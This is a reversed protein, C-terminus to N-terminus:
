RSAADLANLVNIRGKGFYADTGPQGLDDATSTILNMVSSAATTGWQSYLYAALGSVHPASLSTGAELIYHARDQCVTFAPDVSHSSCPGYIWRSPDPPGDGGPAAVDVANQGYNSYSAFADAPGTASVCLQPGAECPLEIFDADRQLDTGENGAASVVVVGRSKARTLARNMASLLYSAGPANRPLYAGLSMNIIQAGVSTAYYIGQIVTGISGTGTADLVKVAILDVDPAVGAIGVNNSTVIGGVLTGHMNDDAWDPPGSISSVLGISRATDILGRQDVHDPDLGSDIIAVRITKGAPGAAWAEPAHIQSLNWQAPLLAAAFPSRRVTVGLPEVGINIQLKAAEREPLWSAIFDRVAVGNGAIATADSDSLGRTLAVGIESMENVVTGGHGAVRTGFDAPVGQPLLFLHRDSSPVAMRSVSPIFHRETASTLSTERCNAFLSVGVALLGVRRAQRSIRM